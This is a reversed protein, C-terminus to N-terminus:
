WFLVSIAAIAVMYTVANAKCHEALSSKDPDAATFTLTNCLVYTFDCYLIVYLVHVTAGCALPLLNSDM